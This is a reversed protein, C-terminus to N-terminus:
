QKEHEPIDPMGARWKAMLDDLAKVVDERNANSVYQGRGDTFVILSFMVREGAAITLQRDLGEAIGRLALSIRRDGSKSM